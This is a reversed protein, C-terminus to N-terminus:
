NKSGLLTKVSTSQLPHHHLRCNLRHHLRRDLYRNLRHILYVPFELKGFLSGSSINDEISTNFKNLCGLIWFYLRSWSFTEYDFLLMSYIKPDMFDEVLLNAIHENLERWRKDIEYLSYVICSLEATTRSVHGVDIKGNIDIPEGRKQPLPSFGSPSLILMTWCYDGNSQFSRESQEQTRRVTAIM